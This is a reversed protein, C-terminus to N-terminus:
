KPFSSRGDDKDSWRDVGRRRKALGTRCKVASKAEKLSLRLDLRLLNSELAFLKSAHVLQLVCHNVPTVALENLMCVRYQVYQVTAGGVCAVILGCTLSTAIVKTWSYDGPCFHHFGPGM